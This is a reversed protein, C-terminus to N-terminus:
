SLIQRLILTRKALWCSLTALMKRQKHQKQGVAVQSENRQQGM